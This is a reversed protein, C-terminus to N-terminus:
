MYTKVSVDINITIGDNIQICKTGDLKCKCECLIHKTVTESENIGTVMNFVSLNLDEAKNLICVKNSLDNITNCSGVCRDLKVM